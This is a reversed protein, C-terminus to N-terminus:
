ITRRDGFTIDAESIQAFNQVTLRHHTPM